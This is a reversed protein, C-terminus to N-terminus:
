LAKPEYRIRQLEPRLDVTRPTRLVPSPATIVSIIPSDESVSCGQNINPPKSATGSHKVDSCSLALVGAIISAGSTWIFVDRLADGVVISLLLLNTSVVTASKCSSRDFSHVRINRYFIYPNLYFMQLPLNCSDLIPRDVANSAVGEVMGISTSRKLSKLAGEAGYEHIYRRIHVCEHINSGNLRRRYIPLGTPKLLVISVEKTEHSVSIKCPIGARVSNKKSCTGYFHLSDRHVTGKRVMVLYNIMYIKTSSRTLHQIQLYRFVDVLFEWECRKIRRTRTRPSVGLLNHFYADPLYDYLVDRIRSADQRFPASKDLGYDILISQAILQSVVGSGLSLLGLKLSLRVNSYLAYLFDETEKLYSQYEAMRPPATLVIIFTSARGHHKILYEHPQVLVFQCSERDHGYAAIISFCRLDDRFFEEKDFVNYLAESATTTAQIYLSRPQALYYLLIEPM